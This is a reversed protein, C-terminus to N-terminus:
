KECGKAYRQIAASLPSGTQLAIIISALMPALSLVVIKDSKKEEPLPISDTIILKEIVSNNIREVAPNSLVGHTICAFIRKAGLEKLKGAANCLTGATDVIDDVIVCDKGNIDGVIGIVEAQNPKPRRKDIIAIPVNLKEALKSTRVVGGHDPSVCVTDNLNLNKNVYSYFLPMTSIDDVPINFFGATQSAHLDCCVVRDAGATTLLDAVLKCSIPQRAKAKRDQRAYGFYPIICSITAAGARKCADICLLVEMLRETVPCCTSQVIFVDDGRFSEGGEFLIEGDAFHMVTSKMVDVGILEAIEKAMETNATLSVIKLREYM